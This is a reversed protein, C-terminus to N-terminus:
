PLSNERITKHIWDLYDGVKTYVEPLGKFCSKAGNSLLGILTWGGNQEDYTVLPSGSDGPCAAGAKDNFDDLSVACLKGYGSQAICGKTKTGDVVVLEAGKLKSSPGEYPSQIGWGSVYAQYGQYSLGSKPLKIPQVKDTFRVKRSLKVLAIDNTFTVDRGSNSNAIPDLLEGLRHAFHLRGRRHTKRPPKQRYRRNFQRAGGGFLSHWLSIPGRSPRGGIGLPQARPQRMNSRKRFQPQGYDDRGIAREAVVEIGDEGYSAHSGLYVKMYLAPLGKGAEFVRHGPLSPPHWTICHRATLVWQENILAAGCVRQKFKGPETNSPFTTKLKVMWPFEHPSLFWGKFIRDIDQGYTLGVFATLVFVLTKM